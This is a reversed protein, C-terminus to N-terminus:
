RVGLLREDPEFHRLHVLYLLLHAAAGIGFAVAIRGATGLDPALVHAAAFAALLVGGAVVLSGLWSLLMLVLAAARASGRREPLLTRMDLPDPFRLSYRDGFVAWLLALSLGYGFALPYMLLGPPGAQPPRIWGAAWFVLAVVGVSVVTVLLMAALRMVMVRKRSWGALAHRVDGGGRLDPGLLNSSLSQWWFPISLLLWPIGFVFASVAFLLLFVLTARLFLFRLLVLVEKAFAAPAAPALRAALRALRATGGVTRPPPPSHVADRAVLWGDLRFLGLALLAALALAAAEAAPAQRSGLLLAGAPGRAWAPGPVFHGPERLYDLILPWLGLAAFLVAQHIVVSRRYRIVDDVLQALAVVAATWAALQLTQLAWAGPGGRAGLAVAGWLFLVLALAGRLPQSFALRALWFSRPLPLLDFRRSGLVSQGPYLVPALVVLLGGLLFLVSLYLAEGGAPAVRAGQSLGALVLAVVLPAGTERRWRRRTATWWLRAVWRISPLPFQSPLPFLSSPLTSTDAAPLREISSTSAESGPGSSAPERSSDARSSGAGPVSGV